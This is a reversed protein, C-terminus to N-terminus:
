REDRWRKVRDELSVVRVTLTAVDVRLALAQTQLVSMEARREDNQKEIRASLKAIEDHQRVVDTELIRFGVYMTVAASTVGVITPVLLKQLWEPLAGAANAAAAFAPVQHLQDAFDTLREFM